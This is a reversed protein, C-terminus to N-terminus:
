VTPEHATTTDEPQSLVGSDMRAAPAIRMVSNTSWQRKACDWTLVFGDRFRSGVSLSCDTSDESAHYRFRGYPTFPTVAGTAALTSPYHGHQQAYREIARITPEAAQRMQESRPGSRFLLVVVLIIGIGVAVVLGGQGRRRYM